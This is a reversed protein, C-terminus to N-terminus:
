SARRDGKAATPPRMWRRQNACPQRNLRQCIASEQNKICGRGACFVGRGQDLGEAMRARPWATQSSSGSRAYAHGLALEDVRGAIGSSQGDGEEVV